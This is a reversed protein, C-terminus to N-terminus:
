YKKTEVINTYVENALELNKIAIAGIMTNKIAKKFDHGRAIAKLAAICHRLTVSMCYTEDGSDEKLYKIIDKYCRHVRKCETRKFGGSALINIFTDDDPDEMIFTNPFRSTFAENPERSGQTGTNMTGIIVCLPHRHIEEYGNKYLVFPYEIAQGFAGQMVNPDPLNFEEFVVIGGHEYAELFPTSKFAFGGDVVKTKGEAEDEESNKSFPITYIPINHAVSLAQAITTKGTGPKGVLIVNLYNDGIAEVGEAGELMRDTVCELEYSLMESVDVFTESPVFRDLYKKTQIHKQQEVTWEYAIDLEGSKCKEMYEKMTGSAKPSSDEAFPSGAVYSIHTFVSQNYRGLGAKDTLKMNCTRVAQEVQLKIDETFEAVGFTTLSDKTDYYFCDCFYGLATPSVETDGADAFEKTLQELATVTEMYRTDGSAIVHLLIPVLTTSRNANIAKTDTAYLATGNFYIGLCGTDGTVECYVDGTDNVVSAVSHNVLFKDLVLAVRSLTPGSGRKAPSRSSLTATKIPITTGTAKTPCCKISRSSSRFLLENLNIDM